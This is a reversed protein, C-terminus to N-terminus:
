LFRTDFDGYRQPRFPQGHREAFEHLYLPPNGGLIDIAEKEGNSLSTILEARIEEIIEAKENKGEAGSKIEQAKNGKVIRYHSSPSPRQIGTYAPRNYALSLIEVGSHVENLTNAIYTALDDFRHLDINQKRRVAKLGCSRPAFPAGPSDM